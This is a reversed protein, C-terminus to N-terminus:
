GRGYNYCPKRKYCCKYKKYKKGYEKKCAKRVVCNMKQRRCEYNSMCKAGCVPDGCATNFKKLLNINTFYSM